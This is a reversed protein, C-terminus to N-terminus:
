RTGKAAETFAGWIRGGDKNAYGAHQVMYVFVRGAAPDIWMNTSFAGGHGCPGVIAPDNKGHMKHTTSWGLGYGGEGGTQTSTMERIAQESLYRRGQFVGKGLIMRCFLAVDAATSFLGGAPSPGRSRRTLPSACQGIEIQQLGTKAANPAYSKALRAVQEDNPWFTTDKMGLPKFLRTDLFEEYPMRSVVEIIRGATNIGANSYSHKTGPESMLPTLAYTLVAVRLPYDDIKREVCSMFPLGSTHNLLHRVTMTREPRKLVMREKGPEAIVMQGRFEPLYKEVPDDLKVKGEDVLMMLAAATIPKSMSAIWFMCDTQMVRKGAVDMYGVAELDLLRDKSAVAIVAGALTHSDVFPQLVAAISKPQKLEAPQAVAAGSLLYAGLVATFLSVSHLLKTM